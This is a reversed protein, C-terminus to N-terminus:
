IIFVVAPELKHDGKFNISDTLCATDCFTAPGDASKSGCAVFMIATIFSLALTIFTKM